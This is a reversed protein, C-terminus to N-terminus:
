TIDYGSDNTDDAFVKSSLSLRSDDTSEFSLFSSPQRSQSGQGSSQSANSLASSPFAVCSLPRSTLNSSQKKLSQSSLKKDSNQENSAMLRIKVSDVADLLHKADMALIHAASLMGKRYEGDLTTKAYKLAQQMSEVLSAMDKSLVKHAMQVERRSWLPFDAVVVDVAALLNRLHVGVQKVLELYDDVRGQQVGQSLSMVAKVVNTTNEYVTDGTRDLEATPVNSSAQSNELFGNSENSPSNKSNASNANLTRPIGGAEVCDSDSYSRDSCSLRKKSHQSLYNNMAIPTFLSEKEALWKSDEESERQQQQLKMELIKKELKGENIDKNCDVNVSNASKWVPMNSSEENSEMYLRETHGLHFASHVLNNNVKPPSSTSFRDVPLRSPKPPPEDSGSSGWSMAQIRRNERKMVEQQQRREDELIEGLVRRIEKFSPRKSPEYSWCLSMLNYLHPPCNQPLPLREGNEIRGIVDNNKVGQFPKVGYMLIEWICVGFMWVDSATTFRRFNISEPAMWKIPLKGKSAKYYHQDEVWRSLGFDGLKVCDHSSVLVNRAAIDRHVFKRSELYSLATSLQFAYLILTALDLQNRNNQLYARMEGHKALEMVIWIPSDSCIGILRIIHRHDFQQMIYAEELFKEGMSEESEVKCTKVAVSLTQGDKSIYTGKHVDGFQGEGIIEGLIVDTRKLEYDKVIPTSYDGEEEVIEAYDEGFKFGITKSRPSASKLGSKFSGHRAKLIKSESYNWFSTKTGHVLRCYGDILSAICEAVNSSPCTISLREAAGDVKLQLVPKSGFSTDSTIVTNISQVKQFSAVHTPAANPDTLFSIGADASVVLEVPVSWGTGLACKFTERDYKVVPHVMDLFMFMCDVESLSAFRKFQNQIMKRLAKPKNNTIVPSPLFKHLGVDKELFEFNSKKDLAVHTMDKFFRRIEICCLHIALDQDINSNIKLYDNKVQEYFYLFTVKDKEYMDRLDKPVFRVRLEFRWEDVPYYSYKELVQFMGAESHLWHLENSPTHSLRISFVSEFPRPTESLRKTVVDIVDKVATTEGFKVINSNGNSLFVKLTTREHKDSPSNSDIRQYKANEGQSLICEQMDSEDLMRSCEKLNEASSSYSCSYYNASLINTEEKFRTLEWYLESTVSFLPLIDYFGM